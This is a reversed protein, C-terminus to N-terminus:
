HTNRIKKLQKKMLLNIGDILRQDRKMLMNAVQVFTPTILPLQKKPGIRKKKHLLYTKFKQGINGMRIIYINKVFIPHHTSKIAKYTQRIFQRKSPEPSNTVRNWM